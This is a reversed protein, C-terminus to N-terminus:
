GRADTPPGGADRHASGPVDRGAHGAAPLVVQTCRSTALLVGDADFLEASCFVVRRTRRVVTGTATLRSPRTPRLFEVRLDATLFAQDDDLVSWCAGGMAADLLATVLGGQVVPGGASPFCYDQPADWGITTSGFAWGLREYGLTTWIHTAPAPDPSRSPRPESSPPASPPPTDM